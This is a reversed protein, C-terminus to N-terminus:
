KFITSKNLFKLIKFILLPYFPKLVPLEGICHELYKLIIIFFFTIITFYLFYKNIFHNKSFDIFFILFM